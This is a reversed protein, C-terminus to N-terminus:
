EVGKMAHRLLDWAAWALAGLIVVCAARAVVTAFIM